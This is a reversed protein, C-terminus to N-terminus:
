RNENNAKITFPDEDVEVVLDMVVNDLDEREEFTSEILKGINKMAREPHSSFYDTNVRNYDLDGPETHQLYKAASVINGNSLERNFDNLKNVDDGLSFYMDVLAEKAKPKLDEFNYYNKSAKNYAEKLDSILLSEAEEITIGQVYNSLDGDLKHGYGIMLYEGRPDYYPMFRNGSFSGSVNQQYDLDGEFTKIGDLFSQNFSETKNEM